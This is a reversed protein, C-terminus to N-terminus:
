RLVFYYFAFAGMCLLDAVIVLAIILNRYNPKAGPPPGFPDFQETSKKQYFPDNSWSDHPDGSGYENVGGYQDKDGFQSEDGFASKGAFASEPEPEAESPPAAEPESEPTDFGEFSRESPTAGEVTDALRSVAEFIGYLKGEDTELGTQKYLIQSGSYEIGGQPVRRIAERLTSDGGLLDRALSDPTSQIIFQQDFATDGIEIDQSGFAKGISDFATQRRLKLVYNNPNRVNFSIATYRTSSKGHSVTYTWLRASRGQFVGSASPMSLFNGPEITLGARQALATWGAVTKQRTLYGVVIAFGIFVIPLGCSFSIGLLADWDM